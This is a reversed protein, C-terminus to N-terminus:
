TAPLSSLTVRTGARPAMEPVYMDRRMPHRIYDPHRERPPMVVPPRLTEHHPVRELLQHVCNLGARKKDMANVVWMPAEVTHTRDLM